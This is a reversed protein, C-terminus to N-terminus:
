LLYKKLYDLLATTYNDLFLGPPTMTYNQFIPPCKKLFIEGDYIRLQPYIYIGALTGPKKMTAEVQSQCISDDRQLFFLLLYCHSRFDVGLGPREEDKDEERKM